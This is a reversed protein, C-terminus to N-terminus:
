TMAEWLVNLYSICGLIRQRKTLDSECGVIESDTLDLRARLLHHIQDVPQACASFGGPQKEPLYVGYQLSWANRSAETDQGHFGTWGDALLLGKCEEGVGLAERQLMFAKGLLNHCLDMYSQGTMFHSKGGSTCIYCQGAFRTNFTDMDCQKM